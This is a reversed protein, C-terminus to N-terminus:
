ILTRPNLMKLTQQFIMTTIRYSYLSSLNVRQYRSPHRTERLGLEDKLASTKNYKHTKKLSPSKAIRKKIQGAIDLFDM